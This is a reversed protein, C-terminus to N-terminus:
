IKGLHTHKFGEFHKLGFGLLRDLAIHSLLIAGCLSILNNFLVYGGIICVVALAKNHFFNYIIAGVKANILYGIMSIDPLFLLVLFWWWAYSLSAFFFIGLIFEALYELKLLAKM